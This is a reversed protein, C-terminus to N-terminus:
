RRYKDNLGIGSEIMPIVKATRRLRTAEQKAESVHEAFERQRGPTLAAFKKKATANERLADQLESPVVVPKSRDASIKQGSEQLAIAEKVYAKITRVKIEKGSSMRWQRMAKTKGEQANMLVGSTDQLLAGQFFWLGFYSQFSAMGVVSKGQHCYTPRGWKITEELGCALLIERLRSMEAHWVQEGKLFADVTKYSKM